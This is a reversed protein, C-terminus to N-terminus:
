SMMVILGAIGLIAFAVILTGLTILGISLAYWLAFFFLVFVLAVLFM